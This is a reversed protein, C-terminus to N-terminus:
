RPDKSERLELNLEAQRRKVRLFPLLRRCASAAIVDTAQFAWLPRSNPSGGRNRSVHGGFTSQLLRPIDPTVQKLGIRESYTYNHADKRVRMHYSSRRITLYGDSDMAGALYALIESSGKM